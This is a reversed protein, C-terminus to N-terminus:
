APRSRTLRRAVRVIRFGLANLRYGFSRLPAIGFPAGYNRKLSASPLHITKLASRLGAYLVEPNQTARATELAAAGMQERLSQSQVLAEMKKEWESTNAALMCSVGDQLLRSCEGGPACVIPLGAAMYLLAKLPGRAAYDEADFPEPYLGVDLALMEQIMGAEGYEATVSCPIGGLARSVADKSGGLIRFEVGPNREAVAKLSSQIKELASVTTRSGVWGIRTRQPDRQSIKGAKDRAEDFARLPVATPAIFINQNHRRAYSVLFENECFVVDVTQLVRELDHWGARRHVPKWLADSFDFALVARSGQRLAKVLSLSPVKVLVIWDCGQAARLVAPAGAVAADISEVRWGENTFFERYFAGRVGATAHGRLSDTVCLVSRRVSDPTVIASTLSM